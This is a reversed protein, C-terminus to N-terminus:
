RDGLKGCAVFKGGGMILNKKSVVLGIDCWVFTIHGENVGKDAVKAGGKGKAQRGGPMKM